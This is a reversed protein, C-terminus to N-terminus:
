EMKRNHKRLGTGEEKGAEEWNERMDLVHSVTNSYSRWKAEGEESSEIDIDRAGFSRAACM